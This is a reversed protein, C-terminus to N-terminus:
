GTVPTRDQLHPQSVACLDDGDVADLDACGSGLPIQQFFGRDYLAVTEGLPDGPRASRGNPRIAQPMRRPM